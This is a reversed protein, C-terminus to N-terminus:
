DVVDYGADEIRGRVDQESAKGEDYEVTVRRAGLDVDVRSVGGPQTVARRVANACGECTMGEVNFSVVRM